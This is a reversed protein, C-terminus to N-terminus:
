NILGINANNFIYTIREDNFLVKLADTPSNDVIYLHFDVDVSNLVSNVTQTLEATDNNYTVISITVISNYTIM